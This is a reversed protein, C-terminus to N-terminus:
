FVLLWTSHFPIFHEEHELCLQYFTTSKCKLLFLLLSSFTNKWQSSPYQPIFLSPLSMFRHKTQPSTFNDMCSVRWFLESQYSGPLNQTLQYYKPGSLHLPHIFESTGQNGKWGLQRYNQSAAHLTGPGSNLVIWHDWEFILIHECLHSLTWM